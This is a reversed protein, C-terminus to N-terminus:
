RRRAKGHRARLQAVCLVIAVLWSAVVTGLEWDPGVAALICGLAWLVLVVVIGRKWVKKVRPPPHFDWAGPNTKVKFPLGALVRKAREVQTEPVYLAWFVGPGPGPLVPMALRLGTATEEQAYHAVHATTLAEVAMDLQWVRGTRLVAVPNMRESLM